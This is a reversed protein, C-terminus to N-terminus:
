VAKQNPVHKMRRIARLADLNNFIVGPWEALPARWLYALLGWDQRVARWPDVEYDEHIGNNSMAVWRRFCATCSGCARDSDAYCSRTDHLREALDPFSKVFSAVLQSKTMRKVPGIIKVPQETFSLLKSARRM